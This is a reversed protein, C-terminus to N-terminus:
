SGACSSTICVNSKANVLVNLLLLSSGIMGPLVTVKLIVTNLWPVKSAKSTSILSYMGVPKVNASLSQVTDLPTAVNILSIGNM